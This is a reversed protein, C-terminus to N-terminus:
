RDGKRRRGGRHDRRTLHWSRCDSCRYIFLKLERTRDISMRYEATNTADTRSGFRVKGSVRCVGRKRCLTMTPQEPRM